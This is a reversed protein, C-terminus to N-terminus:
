CSLRCEGENQPDKVETLNKENIFNEVEEMSEFGSASKNIGDQVYEITINM